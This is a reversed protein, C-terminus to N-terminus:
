EIDESVEYEGKESYSVFMNALGKKNIESATKKAWSLGDGFSVFWVVKSPSDRLGEMDTPSGADREVIIAETKSVYQEKDGTCIGPNKAIIRFGLSRAWDIVKIVDELDYADPNDLELFRFGASLAKNFQDELNKHWGLGKPDIQGEQYQAATDSTNLYPGYSGTNNEDFLNCYKIAPGYPRDYCDYGVEVSYGPYQMMPVSDSGILYKLRKGTFLNM